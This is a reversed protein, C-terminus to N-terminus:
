TTLTVRLRNQLQNDKYLYNFAILFLHFLEGHYPVPSERSGLPSCPPLGNYIPFSYEVLNSIMKLCIQQFWLSINSTYSLLCFIECRKRKSIIKFPLYCSTTTSLCGTFGTRPLTQRIILYQFTKWCSDREGEGATQYM